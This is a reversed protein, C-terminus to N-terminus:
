FSQGLCLETVSHEGLIRLARLEIRLVSLFSFSCFLDRSHSESREAGWVTKLKRGLPLSSVKNLLLLCVFLFCLPCRRSRPDTTLVTHLLGCFCHVGVAQYVTVLLVNMDAIFLPLLLFIINLM